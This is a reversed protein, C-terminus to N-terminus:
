DKAPCNDMNNQIRGMDSAWRDMASQLTSDLKGVAVRLEVITTSLVATAALSSRLSSELVEVRTELKGTEKGISHMKGFLGAVTALLGVLGVIAGIEIV